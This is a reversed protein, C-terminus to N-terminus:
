GVGRPVFAFCSLTKNKYMDSNQLGGFVLHVLEEDVKTDIRDCPQGSVSDVAFLNLVPNMQLENSLYAHLQSIPLELVKAFDYM